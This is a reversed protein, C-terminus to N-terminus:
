AKGAEIKLEQINTVRGHIPIVIEIDLKLREINAYLAAVFENIKEPTRTVPQPARASYADAVVLVKEKPLYAILMGDVHGLGTLTHIEVTRGAPDGIIVPKDGVTQFKATAGASSMRDPQLSRPAAYAAEYYARNLEHTYITAGEAVAARVGGSHDFHHHTNIATRIPKNPITKKILDIVEAVRAESQPAEIMVVETPLEVVTVNYGGGVVWVGDALKVITAPPAPVPPQVQAPATVGGANVKADALNVELAAHGQVQQVIKHPVKIGSLDRYDGYTTVTVMDGLVPNATVSEVTEILNQANATAKARFKGPRDISFTTTNNPGTAASAKDALAARVIGHASIWLEHQLNTVQGPQATPTQGTASWATEGSLGSVRRQDGVFPQAGGGMMPGPPQVFVFEELMAANAYDLTRVVKTLPFKPWPGGARQSQGVMYFSGAASYQLTNLKASGMANAVEELTAAGAPLALLGLIAIPALRLRM